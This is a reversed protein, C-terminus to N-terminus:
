EQVAIYIEVEAAEPNSAKAGYLEFDATYVRDLVRNWIDYWAQVVIGKVTKSM